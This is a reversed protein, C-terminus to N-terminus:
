RLYRSSPGAPVSRNWELIIQGPQEFSAPRTVRSSSREVAATVNGPSSGSSSSAMAIPRTRERQREYWSNGERSESGPVSVPIPELLSVNAQRRPSTAVSALATAVGTSRDEDQAVVDPSPTGENESQITGAVLSRAHDSLVNAVDDERSGRRVWEVWTLQLESLSRIGYFKATSATWNRTRLGEGVYEVFKQKGGLAIFFRALSFGQAYLPLMDAPYETMRFMENFAIGRNTTLFQVLLMEQKARESHHEVTTCAGEDAWRPLKQGFHTAFITHTIEHPLVSDLVREPTGRVAMTWGRPQSGDGVFMFSTQGSAGLNPGVQVSIPCPDIWDPLERGLWEMALERRLREAADGVAKALDPTPATVLFSRTRYGAANAAPLGGIWAAFILVLMSFRPCTAVVCRHVPGSARNRRADGVIQADM